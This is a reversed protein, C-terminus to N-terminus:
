ESVDADAYDVDSSARAELQAPATGAASSVDDTDDNLRRRQELFSHNLM